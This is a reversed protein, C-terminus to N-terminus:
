VLDDLQIDLAKAIARMAATSGPKKGSEIVSLYSQPIGAKAALQKQNLGRYRRWLPILSKGAHYAEAIQMSFASPFTEEARATAADFAAIDALMESDEMLASYHEIPLLAYIKGNKEITEIDM